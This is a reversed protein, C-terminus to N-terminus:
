DVPKLYPFLHEEETAMDRELWSVLDLLSRALAPPLTTDAELKSLSETLRERQCRHEELFDAASYKLRDASRSLIPLLTSEEWKMHSILSDHLDQGKRRLASALEWDGRLVQLALSELIGAKGRLQAHHLLLERRVEFPKLNRALTFDHM